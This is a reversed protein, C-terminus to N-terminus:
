VQQNVAIAEPNAIIDWLLDLQRSASLVTMRSGKGLTSGRREAATEVPDPHPPTHPTLAQNPCTPCGGGKGAPRGTAPDTIDISLILPSSQRDDSHDSSM